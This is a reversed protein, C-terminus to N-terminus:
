DEFSYGRLFEYRPIRREVERVLAPSWALKSRSRSPQGSVVSASPGVYRQDDTVGLFSYLARLSAAPQAVLSEYRLDFLEDAGLQRKIAVMADCLGFYEDVTGELTPRGRLQLKMSSINDYPNRIVNVVRLPVRVTRRLRTLLWPHAYLRRTSQGGKKDGIVRLTRYTGQWQGPVNYDSGTWARGATTFSRDNALILAYLQNRRFRFRLLRLVDLEHAIVVDPHADLLSGVLSHGSRPYGVFMCYAEVQDFLKRQRMGQRLSALYIAAFRSRPQAGVLAPKPQEATHRSM